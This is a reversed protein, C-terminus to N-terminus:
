QWQHRHLEVTSRLMKPATKDVANKYALYSSLSIPMRAFTFDYTICRTSTQPNDPEIPEVGLKKSKIPYSFFFGMVIM